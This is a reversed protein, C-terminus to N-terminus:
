AHPMQGSGRPRLLVMHASQGDAVTVRKLRAGGTAIRSPRLVSQEPCTIRRDDLVCIAIPPAEVPSV